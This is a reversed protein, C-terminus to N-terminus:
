KQMLKVGDEREWEGLKGEIFGVAQAVMAKTDPVAPIAPGCEIRVPRRPRIASVDKLVKGIPMFDTKVAVPVMPVGARQALKAGLSNFTSGEFLAHRTGQPFILVSRREEQIVKTGEELVKRLDALPNVRDVMICRSARAVAGFFPMKSIESKIIVALGGFSLLVSPLLYTELQGMHNAVYVVPEGSQVREKFGAIHLRGGCRECLRAFHWSSRGWYNAYYDRMGRTEHWSRIYGYVLGFMFFPTAFLSPLYSNTSEPPTSYEGTEQMMKQFHEFSTAM